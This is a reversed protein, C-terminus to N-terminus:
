KVGKRMEFAWKILHKCGQLNSGFSDAGEISPNMEKDTM